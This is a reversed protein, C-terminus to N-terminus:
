ERRQADARPRKEWSRSAPDRLAQFVDPMRRVVAAMQFPWRPVHDFSGGMEMTAEIPRDWRFRAETWLRVPSGLRGVLARFVPERHSRGEGRAWTRLVARILWDPLTEMRAVAPTGDVRAGLLRHALAVACTVWDGRRHDPGLCRSWDFGVPRTEIAMALDVLWIPRFVGHRLAHLALMRLHDELGPVRVTEGHLAVTDAREALDDFGLADLRASGDHLDVPYDLNPPAALAARAAASQGPRVILDLDTYQRLGVEPYHRAIAWGKVLLAEVGASRLRRLAEVTKLAHVEAELTQLRYAQALGAVPATGALATGRLRWWALAAAGTRHLLPAVRALEDASVDLPPPTERWAGALVQAVLAARPRGRVPTRGSGGRAM